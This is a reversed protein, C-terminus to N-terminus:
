IKVTNLFEEINDIGQNKLVLELNALDITKAAMPSM